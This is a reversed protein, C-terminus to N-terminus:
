QTGVTEVTLIYYMIVASVLIVRYNINIFLNPSLMQIHEIHKNIVFM